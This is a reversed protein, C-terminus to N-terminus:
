LNQMLYDVIENEDVKVEEKLVNDKITVLGKQLDENNLILLFKSEINDAQKFQSKLSLDNICLTTKIGNLRLEQSIKLAHYKEEESVAMIFVENDELKVNPNDKLLALIIRDVGLAFGIAPLNPGNLNEVLTDYRGGAGLTIGEENIYEFVIDTYYDLGRVIKEDVEYNIDLITLLEKVKNFKDKSAESLFDSIKPVNAFAATTADVKCDLMRLPNTNYRKKCDECLSDLHPLMYEKLAAIYKTKSDTDGLTNIKVTVDDLGFELFLNYGLSIIEADSLPSSSNFGEVGFQTFERNRGYQPREYRYMTGMYYYKFFMSKNGYLKNEILARVTSATGEPRLSMKRDGRDIFDYTEKTVIDSDDGVTRHFLESSEFIPTRLYKVNYLKMYNTFIDTINELVVAEENLIDYTGKPKTIM